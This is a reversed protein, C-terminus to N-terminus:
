QCVQLVDLPIDSHTAPEPSSANLTIEKISETKDSKAWQVQAAALRFIRSPLSLPYFVFVRYVLSFLSFISPFYLFTPFSRRNPAYGFTAPSLLAQVSKVIISARADVETSTTSPAAHVGQDVLIPSPGVGTEVTPPSADISISLVEPKAQVERSLLSPSSQVAIEATSPSVHIGCEVTDIIAEISKDLTAPKVNEIPQSFNREFSRVTQIHPLLEAVERWNRANAETYGPRTKEQFSKLTDLHPGMHSLLIAVQLPNDIWSHGVHLRLLSKSSTRRSTLIEPSGEKADVVLALTHLRRCRSILYAVTDLTIKPAGMTQPFRALPCLKLIELRPCAKALSEIDSPTFIISEPLDIELRTLYPLYSLYELPLSAAPEARTTSRVLDVFRSSGTAMVRLSQLSDGFRECVLASLDYWDARDPPDEIVLELQTLPSTIHKVFVAINSVDGTLHLKRMQAFSKKSPLDGTLRLASKRIESFDLEDESFVGSDTSGVSSPTSDGSRPRLEDFFGEVAIMSRGTLDLQLTKLQPLSALWRGVGPSLAGPAVLVVRELTDQRLLLETFADPLSTPSVFSFGTLKTRSSMDALFSNLQPFKTSIELNIIRLEPSLFLSCRDLGAPTEAKWNLEILRPLIYTRPRSGEFVSFVSTAVANSLENYNLQRVRESYRLVVKWDNEAPIKAFGLGPKRAKRLLHGPFLGLIPVLSDLERWLVNLAPECIARCTRALRSLARKGNPSELIAEFLKRAAEPDRLISPLM